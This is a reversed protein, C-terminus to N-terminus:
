TRRPGTPRWLNGFRLDKIGVSRLDLTSAIWGTEGLRRLRHALRNVSQELPAGLHPAALM